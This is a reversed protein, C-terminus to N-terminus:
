EDAEHADCHHWGSLTLMRVETLAAYQMKLPVADMYKTEWIVLVDDKKLLM